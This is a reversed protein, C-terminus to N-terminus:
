SADGDDEAEEPVAALTSRKREYGKATCEEDTDIWRESPNFIVSPTIRPLNMDVCREWEWLTDRRAKSSKGTGDRFWWDPIDAPNQVVKLIERKDEIFTFREQSKGLLTAYVKWLTSIAAHARCICVRSFHASDLAAGIAIVEESAHWSFDLARQESGDAVVVYEFKPFAKLILLEVMYMRFRIYSSEQPSGRRLKYADPTNKMWLIPRGETDTGSVMAGTSQIYQVFLAKDMLQEHRSIREMAEFIQRLADWVYMANNELQKFCEDVYERRFAPLVDKLGSEQALQHLALYRGDGNEDHADRTVCQAATPLGGNVADTTESM